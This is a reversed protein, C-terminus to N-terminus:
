LAETRALQMAMEAGHIAKHYLEKNTLESGDVM